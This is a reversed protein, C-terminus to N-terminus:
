KIGTVMESIMSLSDYIIKTMLSKRSSFKGALPGNRSLGPTNVPGTDYKSISTELFTPHSRVELSTWKTEKASFKVTYNEFTEFSGDAISFM